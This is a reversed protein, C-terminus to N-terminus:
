FMINSKFIAVKLNSFIKVKRKIPDIRSTSQENEKAMSTLSFVDDKTFEIEPKWIPFSHISSLFTQKSGKM